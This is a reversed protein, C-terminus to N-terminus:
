AILTGFFVLAGLSVAGFLRLDDLWSTETRETVSAVQEGFLTRRLALTDVRDM